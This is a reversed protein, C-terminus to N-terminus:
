DVYTNGRLKEVRELVRNYEKYGIYVFLHYATDPKPNLQTLTFTSWDMKLNEPNVQKNEEYLRMEFVNDMKVNYRLCYKVVDVIDKNFFNQLPISDYPTKDGRDDMVPFSEETIYGQKKYYTFEVGDKRTYFKDPIMQMTYVLDVKEGLDEIDWGLNYDGPKVVKKTEFFYKSPVWFDVTLTDTIRFNTKVHDKTEGEDVEPNNEFICLINTDYMYYYSARSNAPNIKETIKEASNSGLYDTFAAHEDPKSMDYNLLDHACKIFLKPVQTEMHTNYLYFYGKHLVNSKLYHAVNIQQMRTACVIEIDFTIKIRDPISYVYIGNNRDLFVPMYNDELNRFNYYNTNMWQPLRGFVTDDDFTFRPRIILYPFGEKNFVNDKEKSFTNSSMSSDIHVLKFFDDPFLKTFWTKVVQSCNGILSSLSTTARCMYVQKDM